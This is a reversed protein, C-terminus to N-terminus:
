QMLRLGLEHLSRMGSLASERDLTRKRIAGYGAVLLVLLILSGAITVRLAGSNAALARAQIGSREADLERKIGSTVQRIQDITTQEGLEATAAQAGGQQRLDLAARVHNMHREILIKLRAVSENPAGGSATLLTELTELDRPASQAARYHPQLLRADG